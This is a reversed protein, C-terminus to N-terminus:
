SCGKRQIEYNYFYKIGDLLPTFEINVLSKLLSIDLIMNTVDGDRNAVYEINIQHPVVRKIESLVHNISYGHGSGINITANSIDNLLLQVMIKALDDIYIYDRIASGDGWITIPENALIKGISVAILGQNGHINQGPGYPNSPRLILYKLGSTRNEFLITNEIMQKSLGYYSIPEKPENEKNSELSLRNGYITGGSSFFIFQIKYESCIRILRITPIIINNYESIYANFDSGPLLSSVLHVIKTIGKKKVIELILDIDSIKGYIFNINNNEICPEKPSKFDLVYINSYIRNLYNIINSGIFGCGGIFLINNMIKKTSM